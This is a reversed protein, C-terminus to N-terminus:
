TVDFMKLCGDKSKYNSTPVEFSLLSSHLVKAWPRSARICIGFDLAEIAPQTAQLLSITFMGSTELALLFKQQSFFYPTRPTLQKKQM